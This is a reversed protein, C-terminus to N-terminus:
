KFITKFSQTVNVSKGNFSVLGTIGAPLKGKIVMCGNKKFWSVEITNRQAETGRGGIKLAHGGHYDKLSPIVIRGEAHELPGPRPQILVKKFGPLLPKIGLVENFFEFAPAGSWAHCDSRQSVIDESWTTLGLKLMEKWPELMNFVRDYENMKSLARFCYFLGFYSARSLGDPNELAAAIKKYCAPDAAGCLVAWANALQSFDRPYSPSDRFLGKKNDWFVAKSKKKLASATKKLSVAKDRQGLAELMGAFIELCYIYQFNILASVGTKTGPPVGAGDKKDTWEPSWDAVCWYPLKELLGTKGIHREFWGLVAFIGPVMREAEEADGTYKWYECAMMIWHLSWFPIIQGVRSPYRSATIGESNRSWDFHRIAQRALRADSFLYYSVLAQVQTDGAYQLQEYYPCDEYTEHSCLRQTRTSVDLIRSFGPDSSSFIGTQRFPFAHYIYGIKRIILPEDKVDAILRMFRFAAWQFPKYTSEGGGPIFTDWLGQVAGGETDNRNIKPGKEEWPLPMKGPKKGFLAESYVLKIESDRGGSVELLPFGTVLEGTDLSIDVSSGAPIEFVGNNAIVKEFGACTRNDSGFVTKFNRPDEELAPIIRPYLIHPVASDNRRSITEGKWIQVANEWSSDDFDPSEWGRLYKRSDFIERYGTYVCNGACAKHNYAEDVLVKWTSDTHLKIEKGGYKLVADAIFGPAESMVSDPAGGMGYNPFSDGYYKVLAAIVNRGKKLFRSADATEYFQHAIDGKAPGRCVFQSNVYLIYKSDASVHILLKAPLDNVEFARRFYRVRYPDQRAQTAWHGESSWVWFASGDFPEKLDVGVVLSKWSLV